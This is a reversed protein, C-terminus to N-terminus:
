HSSSRVYKIFAWAAIAGVAVGAAVSVVLNRTSADSDNKTKRLQPAKRRMRKEVNRVGRGASGNGSWGGRRGRGPPPPRPPRRQGEQGQAAVDSWEARDSWAAEWSPPRQREHQHQAVAGVWEAGGIGGGNNWAAQGGVAVVVIRLTDEVLEAIPIATDPPLNERKRREAEHAVLIDLQSDHLRALSPARHPILSIALACDQPGGVGNLRLEALNCMSETHGLSAATRWATAARTPDPPITRPSDSSSDTTQAESVDGAMGSGEMYFMGLHHAAVCYLAPYSEEGRQTDLIELTRECWRIAEGRDVRELPPNGEAHWLAVKFASEHHGGEAAAVVHAFARGADEEVGAEEMGDRRWAALRIHSAVCGRAAAAEFWRAARRAGWPFPLSAEALLHISYPDADDLLADDPVPLPTTLGAKILLPWHSPTAKKFRLTLIPLGLRPDTEVEHLNNGVVVRERFCWSGVKVRAEVEEGVSFDMTEGKWVFSRQQTGAPVVFSVSIEEDTQAIKYGAGEPFIPPPLPKPERPPSIM